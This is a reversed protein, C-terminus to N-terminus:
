TKETRIEMQQRELEAILADLAAIEPTVEEVTAAPQQLGKRASRDQRRQARQAPTGPRAATRRREYREREEPTMAAVRAALQTRRRELTKLKRARRVPDASLVPRHWQAGSPTKGGHRDCRGNAMGPKQCRGGSRTRAGCKSMEARAAISATAAIRRIDRMRPSDFWARQKKSIAARRKRRRTM